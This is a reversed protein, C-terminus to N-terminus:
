PGYVEFEYLSYGYPTGRTTGYMRVYKANQAAFTINEIGGSGNSTSYVDTWNVPTGSDNSIQIKFTKAYAAEWNLRVRNISRSSGLNVYIWQPDVYEASAWRTSPNGDFAKSAEFGPGEISSTVASKGLALNSGGPPSGPM